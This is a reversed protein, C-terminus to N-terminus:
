RDEHKEGKPKAHKATTFLNRGAQHNLEDIISLIDEEDKQTFLDPMSVTRTDFESVTVGL